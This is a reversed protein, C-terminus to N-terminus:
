RRRRSRRAARLESHTLTHLRPVLPAARLPVSPLHLTHHTTHPSRGRRVVHRVVVTVALTACQLAVHACQPSGTRIYHHRIRRHPCTSHEVHKLTPSEQQQGIATAYLGNTETWPDVTGFLRYTLVVAAVVVVAATGSAFAVRRVARRIRRRRPVAGLPVRLATLVNMRGWLRALDVLASRHVASRGVWAKLAAREDNQLARDGDLRILWEAAEADIATRDPFDVVDNSM